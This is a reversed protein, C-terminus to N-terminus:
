PPAPTAPSSWSEGPLDLYYELQVNDPDRFCVFEAPRWPHRQIGATPIGAAALREVIGTLEQRESVRLALHDMGIRYESFRDGSETGQLPPRLLIATEGVHVRYLASDATPQDTVLGLVEAYFHRTRAVDRCRLTIHHVCDVSM